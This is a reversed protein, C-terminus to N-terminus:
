VTVETTRVPSAYIVEFLPYFIKELQGDNIDAHNINEKIFIMM